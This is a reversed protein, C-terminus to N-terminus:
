RMAAPASKRPSRSAASRQARDFKGFPGSFSWSQAPPKPGAEAALVPSAAAIAFGAVLGALSLRLSMKSM